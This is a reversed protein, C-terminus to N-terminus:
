FLKCGNEIPNKDGMRENKKKQCEWHTFSIRDTSQCTKRHYKRIEIKWEDIMKEKAKNM